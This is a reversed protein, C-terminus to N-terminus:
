PMGEITKKSFWFTFDCFIFFFFIPYRFLSHFFCKEPVIKKNNSNHTDCLLNENIEFLRYLLYSRLASLIGESSCSSFFNWLFDSVDEDANVENLAIQVCFIRIVDFASTSSSFFQLFNVRFNSRFKCFFFIFDVQIGFQRLINRQRM